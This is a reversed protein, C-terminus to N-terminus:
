KRSRESLLIELNKQAKKTNPHEPGLTKELIAIAGRYLPEAVAYQGQDRFLEALNNLNLATYPHDSGLQKERIELACRYLPEVAVFQGQTSLM